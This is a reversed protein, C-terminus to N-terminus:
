EEELEIKTDVTMLGCDDCYWALFFSGKTRVRSTFRKGIELNGGEKSALIKHQTLISPMSRGPVWVLPQRYGVGTFGKHMANGCNPCIMKDFREEVSFGGKRKNYVCLNRDDITLFKKSYEKCFM